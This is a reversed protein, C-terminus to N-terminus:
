EARESYQKAKAERNRRISAKSAFRLRSSLTQSPCGALIRCVQHLCFSNSTQMQTKANTYLYITKFFLWQKYKKRMFHSPYFIQEFPHVLNRLTSSSFSICLYITHILQKKLSWSQLIKKGSKLRVM